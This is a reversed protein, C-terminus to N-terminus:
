KTGKRAPNRHECPVKTQCLGCGYRPAHILKSKEIFSGCICNDKGEEPDIAGSPCRKVCAGCRICNEYIDTYLRPDPEFGATVLLSSFRGAMGKETILGRSLGFTGLGCVYAAHRESWRSGYTDERIQPYGDIGQGARVSAWRPDTAPVLAEYGAERFRAAVAATFAKIFAQGEIRAYVWLDSAGSTMRRNSERVEKSIPFFFSIVSKSGPLWEEPGMHWPGIAGTEKFAEFLPDSAAGFGALQPDFMRIGVYEPKIEMESTLVNGPTEAFVEAAMRRVTEKEM